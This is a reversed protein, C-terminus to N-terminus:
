RLLTFFLRVSAWFSCKSALHRDLNLRESCERGFVLKSNQAPACVSTDPLQYRDHLEPGPTFIEGEIKSRECVPYHDTM